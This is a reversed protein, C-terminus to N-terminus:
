LEVQFFDVTHTLVTNGPGVDRRNSNGRQQPPAQLLAPVAVVRASIPHSGRQLQERAASLATQLLAPVVFVRLCPERM